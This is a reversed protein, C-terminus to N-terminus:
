CSRRDQSLWKSGITTGYKIKKEGRKKNEAQNVRLAIKIPLEIQKEGIQKSQIWCVSDALNGDNNISHKSKKKNRKSASEMLWEVKLSMGTVGSTPLTWMFVHLLSLSLHHHLFPLDPIFSPLLLSSAVNILIFRPLLMRGTPLWSHPPSSCLWRPCLCARVGTSNM